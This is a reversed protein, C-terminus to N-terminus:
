TNKLAEGLWDAFARALKEDNAVTIGITPPLTCEINLPRVLAGTDILSQIMHRAGLAVGLGRVACATILLQNDVLIAPPPPDGAIGAAAFWDGWAGGGSAADLLPLGLLDEPATISHTAAFKPSCVPSLYLDFLKVAGDRITRPTLPAIIVDTGAARKRGLTLLEVRVDPRDSLFEHLRPLLTQDYFISPAAVRLIRSQKSPRASRTAERLAQLGPLIRARYARGESTLTLGQAKREFLRVGLEAELGQIRHSIASVTVNLRESAVRLNLVESVCVFAEINRLSPLRETM